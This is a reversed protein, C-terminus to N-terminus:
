RPVRILVFWTDIPGDHRHSARRICGMLHGSDQRRTACV